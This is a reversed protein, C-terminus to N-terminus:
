IVGLLAELQAQARQSLVVTLRIQPRTFAVFLKRRDLETLESFDVETLIVAPASQGKFRYVTDALVDGDTWVQEGQRDYRGTFKRLRFPGLHDQALISSHAAGRYTVLAIDTLAFGAGLLENIAEETKNLLATEGGHVVFEPLEGAYAGKAQIPQDTLKFANITDVIRRPSRYNESTCVLIAPVLEYADRGYLRQAEDGLVYFAGDPKLENHIQGVWGGDFDQAEDIVIVDFRESLEAGVYTQAIEDFIEQRSYDPTRGVRQYHELAREHFTAVECATPVHQRISDALPRNFCLYLPRKGALVADTLLRVALQTKGSGATAEVRVTRVAGDEGLYSLRPVWTALGDSIRETVVQLQKRLADIKPEVQFLNGLFRQVAALDPVPTLQALQQHIWSALRDYRSADIIRDRHFGIVEQGAPINFDPLVLCNQVKSWVGAGSLRNVMAAYQTRCQRDINKDTGSYVMFLEGDKIQADGAKVEVLMMNGNPSLVVFDIEGHRERGDVVSQWEVQHYIAYDSPLGSELRHLVDLERQLGSPFFGHPIAPYFLATTM